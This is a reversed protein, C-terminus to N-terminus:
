ASTAPTPRDNANGCRTCTVALWLSPTTTTTRRSARPRAADIGSVGEATCQDAM